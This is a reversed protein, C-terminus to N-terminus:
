PSVEYRVWDIDGAYYDCTVTIQDCQIKGGITMPFNNSINGTPGNLHRTEQLNGNADSVTETIGTATRECRVTHWLNDRYVGVTRVARQGSAGRVLCTVNGGPLQFKFNGGVTHSQGKQMINGFPKTTRYRFSVAFDRTGPNLRSDPIQIVREPKAPPATPNVLSWRYFTDTGSILGTQVASGINGNIPPQTGSTDNMVTAGAPESMDWFAITTNAAANAQSLGAPLALAVLALLLGTRTYRIGVV